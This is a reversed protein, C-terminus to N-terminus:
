VCYRMMALVRMRRKTEENDNKMQGNSKDNHRGERESNERDTERNVLMGM